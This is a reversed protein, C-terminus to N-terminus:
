STIIGFVLEKLLPHEKQFSGIGKSKVDFERILHIANISQVANYNRLGVTLGKLAYASKLNLANMLSRESKDPTYHMIVLKQFYGFITAATVIAPNSKPNDEFHKLIRMTSVYDRSAIANVLEFNNFEKSIGINDAIHDTTIRKFDSGGAVKLKEIESVIKEISNGLYDALMQAANDDIALKMERCLDKILGPVQYDRVRNSEFVVVDKNKKAAKLLASTANLKDGKFIIVLVTTPTPHEVYGSLKDLKGKPNKPITQTEKFLVLQKQALVPYQSAAELVTEIETEAGYLSTQDFAKEEESVVTADLADVIKDFYYPEDGHLIYVPAFNGKRIDTIIERYTM